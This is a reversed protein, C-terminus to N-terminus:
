RVPTLRSLTSIRFGAQASDIGRTPHQESERLWWHSIYHGANRRAGRKGRGAKKKKIGNGPGSTLVVHPLIRRTHKKKINRIVLLLEINKM